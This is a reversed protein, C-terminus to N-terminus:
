YHEDSSGLIHLGNRIESIRVPMPAKVRWILGAGSFSPFIDEGIGNDANGPNM